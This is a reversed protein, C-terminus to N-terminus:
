FLQYTENHMHELAHLYQAIVVVTTNDEEEKQRADEMATLRACWAARQSAATLFHRMPTHAVERVRRGCLHQLAEYAVLQYTDPYQVGITSVYWPRWSPYRPCDFIQLLIQFKQSGNEDYERGTYELCRTYRLRCCAEWLLKPFGKM